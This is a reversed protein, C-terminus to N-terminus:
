FTIFSSSLTGAPVTRFIGFKRKFFYNRCILNNCATKSLRKWFMLHPNISSPVAIPMFREIYYTRNKASTMEARLNVGRPLVAEIIRTRNVPPLTFTQVTANVARFNNPKVTIGSTKEFYRAFAKESYYIDHHCFRYRPVSFPNPNIFDAIRLYRDKLFLRLFGANHSPSETLRKGAYVDAPNTRLGNILDSLSIMGTGKGSIRIGRAATKVRKAARSM